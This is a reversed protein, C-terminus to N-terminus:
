AGGLIKRQSGTAREACPKAFNITEDNKLEEGNNMERKKGRLGGSKGCLPERCPSVRERSTVKKCNGGRKQDFGMNGRKRRRGRKTWGGKLNGGRFKRASNKGHIPNCYREGLNERKGRKAKKIQLNRVPVVTTSNRKGSNKSRRQKIGRLRECSYIKADRSNRRNEERGQAHENAGL